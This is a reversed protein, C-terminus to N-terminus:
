GEGRICFCSDLLDRLLAVAAALAPETPHSALVHRSGVVIVKVRPRTVAVNLREPQFFFDALVLAWTPDSTTLSLLVVNREQGQMREVTDVVVARRQEDDPVLGRLHRRIERAQARYPVVVGIEEPAVGCDLLTAVLDAVTQAEEPSRTTRGTHALDLFVKPHLPNLIPAFRTPVRPSALRHAAASPHARLRGGYFTRSPWESLEANLRYTEELMTEFGRGALAEFVSRDLLSDTRGRRVPPM